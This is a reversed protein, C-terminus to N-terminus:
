LVTTERIVFYIMFEDDDEAIAKVYTENGEDEISIDEYDGEDLFKVAAEILKQKDESVWRTNVELVDEQSEVSLPIHIAAFM